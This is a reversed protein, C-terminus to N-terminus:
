GIRECNTEVVGGKHPVVFRNTMHNPSSTPAAFWSFIAHNSPQLRFKFLWDPSSPDPPLATWDGKGSVEYIKSTGVYILTGQGTLTGDEAITATLDISVVNSHVICRWQGTPAAPRKPTDAPETTAAPDDGHLAPSGIPGHDAEGQFGASAAQLGAQEIVVGSPAPRAIPQPVTEPKGLAQKLKQSAAERRRTVRQRLSETKDDTM